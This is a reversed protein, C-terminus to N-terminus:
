SPQACAEDYSGQLLSGQQQQQQSPKAASVSITREGDVWKRARLVRGQTTLTSGEAPTSKLHTGSVSGTSDHVITSANVKMQCLRSTLPLSFFPIAIRLNLSGATRVESVEGNVKEVTHDVVFSEFSGAVEAGCTAAVQQCAFAELASGIIAAVQSCLLYAVLNSILGDLCCKFSM